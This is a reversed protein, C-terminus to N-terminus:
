NAAALKTSAELSTVCRGTINGIKVLRSFPPECGNPIREHTQTRQPSKSTTAVGSWNDAFNVADLRDGKHLRDVLSHTTPHQPLSNLHTPISGTITPLYCLWLVITASALVSVVAWAIGRDYDTRSTPSALAYSRRVSHRQENKYM